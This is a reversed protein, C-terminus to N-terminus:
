NASPDPLADVDPLTLARSKLYDDWITDFCTYELLQLGPRQVLQATMRIPEKYMKPDTLTVENVVFRRIEGDRDAKEEIRWREIVHANSTTAMRLMYPYPRLDTTEVVLTDDEWRGISHGMVSPLIAQPPNHDTMYIKRYMGYGEWFVTLDSPEQHIEVSFGAGWLARPIGPWVCFRGPDDDLEFSQEYEARMKAAADTWPLPQPTTRTGAPFWLGSFDPRASTNATQASVTTAGVAIIATVAFLVAVSIGGKRSLRHGRRLGSLSVVLMSM